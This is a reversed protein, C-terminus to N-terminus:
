APPEKREENKKAAEKRLDKGEEKLVVEGSESDVNGSAITQAVAATKGKVISVTHGSHTVIWNKLDVQLYRVGPIRAIERIMQELGSLEFDEHRQNKVLEGYLYATNGIFSYDIKTLDVDNRILIGRILRNIEYRDVAAM